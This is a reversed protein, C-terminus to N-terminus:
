KLNVGIQKYMHPKTVSIDQNSIQCPFRRQGTTIIGLYHKDQSSMYHVFVKLIQNSPTIVVGLVIQIM